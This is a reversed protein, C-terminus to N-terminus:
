NCASILKGGLFTSNYLKKIFLLKYHLLNFYVIEYVSFYFCRVFFDVFWCGYFSSFLWLFILVSFYQKVYLLSCLFVELVLHIPWRNGGVMLLAPWYAAPKETTSQRSVRPWLVHCPFSSMSIFWFLFFPMAKYIVIGKEKSSSAQEGLEMNIVTYFLWFNIPHVLPM